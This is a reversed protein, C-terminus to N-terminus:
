TLTRQLNDYRNFKVRSIKNKLNDIMFHFLESPNNKILSTHSFTFLEQTEIFNHLNQKQKESHFFKDLEPLNKFGYLLIHSSSGKPIRYINIIQPVQLLKKEIEVQGEKKGENTLKTIALAFTEIGLKAYNLNLTYSDIIICELKRRIKGVAVSSIALKSAIESDSIRSNELLLKLTRKENKTLKM